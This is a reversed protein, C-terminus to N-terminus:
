KSSTPSVWFMLDRNLLMSLKAVDERFYDMLEGRLADAIPQRERPIVLNNKLSVIGPVDHRLLFTRISRFAYELQKPPQLVFSALWKWRHVRAANVRPFYTRGDDPLNLFSLVKLYTERPASRFDDYILILRQSEATIDYLRKVQESLRGVVGYDLLQSAADESQESQGRRQRWATAFDPIPEHFSYNMEMHYAPVLEVPNRLIAIFKSDPKFELIQRVARASQLYRTSAEGIAKHRMPNASEYLSLYADLSKFRPENKLAPFDDCWYFPEKPTCVFCDDRAALYSALATTGAKPAGVIYFNPVVTSDSSLHM